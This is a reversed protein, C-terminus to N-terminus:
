WTEYGAGRLLQWFAAQVLSEETVVTPNGSLTNSAPYRGPGGAAPAEPTEHPSSCNGEWRYEAGLRHTVPLAERQCGDLQNVPGRPSIQDLGEPHGEAQGVNGTSPGIWNAVGFAVASQSAVNSASGGCNNISGGKKPQAGTSEGSESWNTIAEVIICTGRKRKTM